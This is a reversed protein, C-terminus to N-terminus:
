DDLYMAECSSSAKRIKPLHGQRIAEIERQAKSLPQDPTKGQGGKVSSLVDYLGKYHDVMEKLETNEKKLKENEKRLNSIVEEHYDRM